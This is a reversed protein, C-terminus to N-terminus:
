SLKVFFDKKCFLQSLKLKKKYNKLRPDFKKSDTKPFNKDSNKKEFTHRKHQVQSLCLKQFLIQKKTFFNLFKL